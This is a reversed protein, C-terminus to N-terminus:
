QTITVRLTLLPDLFGVLPGPESWFFPKMRNWFQGFVRGVADLHALGPCTDVLRRTKGPKVQGTLELRGNQTEPKEILPRM